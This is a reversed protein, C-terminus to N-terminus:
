RKVKFDQYGKVEGERVVVEEVRAREPGEHLWQEMQAIAPAPGEIETLVSGDPENQVWGRLGLQRAKEETSKRFFVGQVKGKIQIRKNTKM